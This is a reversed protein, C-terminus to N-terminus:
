RALGQATCDMACIFYYYYFGKFMAGFVKGLVKRYKVGM